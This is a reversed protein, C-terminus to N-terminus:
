KHNRLAAIFDHLPAGTVQGNVLFAVKSGFRDKHIVRAPTLCIPVPTCNLLPALKFVMDASSTVYLVFTLHRERSIATAVEKYRDLAKYTREYEFGFEIPEQKGQRIQVVADYDKAYPFDTTYNMSGIERDTFWRELMTSPDSQLARRVENIELFHPAQIPDALRESESTISVLGEGYAELVSLGARTISYVAGSHPYVRGIQHVLGIKVYRKVRAYAAQRYPSIGSDIAMSILQGHSIFTANRILKLLSSDAAETIEIQSVQYTRRKPKASKPPESGTAVAGNQEYSM